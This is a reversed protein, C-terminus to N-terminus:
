SCRGCRPREHRICELPVGCGVCHGSPLTQTPLGRAAIGLTALTGDINRHGARVGVVHLTISGACECAECPHEEHEHGCGPRACVKPDIRPYLVAEVARIRQELAEYIARNTPSSFDLSAKCKRAASKISELEEILAERDVDTM